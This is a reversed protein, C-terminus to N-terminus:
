ANEVELQEEARLLADLEIPLQGEFPIVQGGGHTPSIDIQGPEWNTWTDEVRKEIGRNKYYKIKAQIFEKPQCAYNLHYVLRDEVTKTKYVPHKVPRGREDIPYNFSSGYRFEPKWRYCRTMPSDWQGGVAVKDLGHWFHWFRYKFITLAPDFEFERLIRMLDNKHYVEDSDVKLFVEGTVHEAIVNQMEQKNKWMRNISLVKIKNEPDPFSRLISITEDISGGSGNILEPNNEAYKEVAGEVVLIEKAMEYVSSLMMPLTAAGNLVITGVSMSPFPRARVEEAERKTIIHVPERPGKPFLQKLKEGMKSISFVERAYEKGQASREEWYADDDLLRNIAKGMEVYKDVPVFDVFNQYAEKLVPLDYAVVPVGCWLAEAPPMGFGEFRTATVLVKCRKIIEFKRIDNVSGHFRATVGLKLGDKLIRNKMSNSTKGIFHITPMPGDVESLCRILHQPQKFDTHRGVFVIDRGKKTDRAEAAAFENVAPYLFDFLEEPKESIPMWEQAWKLPERALCLVLNADALSIGYGRWYEETSDVGDRWQRVYNPSEFIMGVFPVKLRLAYAHGYQGGFNPVGIIVDADTETDKQAWRSDEIVKFSGTIPFRKFDKAFFPLLDTVIEVDYGYMAMVRAVLYAYYRGGSYHNINQMFIKVKRINKLPNLGGGGIGNLNADESLLQPGRNLYHKRLKARSKHSPHIYNKSGNAM